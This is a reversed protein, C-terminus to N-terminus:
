QCATDSAFDDLVRLAEDWLRDVDDSADIVAALATLTSYVGTPVRDASLLRQLDHLRSGLDALLERRENDNLPGAERLWRAENSLHEGANLMVPQTRWAKAESVSIPGDIDLYDRLVQVRSPFRLKSMTEAFTSSPLRQQRGGSAAPTPM